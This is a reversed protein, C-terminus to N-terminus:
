KKTMWTSIGVYTGVVTGLSIWYFDLIKELKDLRTEEVFFILSVGTSIIALLALWAMKRRNKAKQEYIEQEFASVIGDKNKDLEDSM